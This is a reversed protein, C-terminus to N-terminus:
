RRRVVRFGIDGSAYNPRVAYRLTTRIEFASSYWSGGRIIKETGFWPGSPNDKRSHFYYNSEYWDYCWEWVNGSMDFIGLDNPPFSCVRSSRAIYSGDLSYTKCNKVNISSNYNIEIPNAISKGNGFRITDGLQRAAYEWEAESPLAYGSDAYFECYENAGFWTVNVVPYYEKGPSITWMTGNKILGDQHEYLMKEGKYEGQLVKDSGYEIIFQYFQWNTIEYQSIEYDDLNVTHIKNANAFGEYNFDGMKFHGGKIKIFQPKSDAGLIKGKIEFVVNKNLEINEDLPVWKIRKGSGPKVSNGIDGKPNKPIINFDAGGNISVFLKIEIIDEPLCGLIDYYIWVTDEDTQVFLNAIEGASKKYISQAFLNNLLFLSFLFVWKKIRFNLNNM